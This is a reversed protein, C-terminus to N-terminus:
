QSRPNFSGLRASVAYGHAYCWNYGSLVEYDENDVLAYKGQTLKIKKMKPYGEIYILLHLYRLYQLQRLYRIVRLVTM